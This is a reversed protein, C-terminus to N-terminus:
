NTPMQGTPVAHPSFGKSKAANAKALCIRPNSNQSAKSSHIRTLFEELSQEVAKSHDRLERFDVRLNALSAFAQLVALSAKPFPIHSFVHPIEGLLCAGQLGTSAALGLLTGNLGSISGELLPDLGSKQCIALTAQDTAAAFVRSPHRPRMQTAMAAFTFIKSVGLARAQDILRHCFAASKASPQAEGLFLILDRQGQPANWLFLRSRPLRGPIILGSRVEVQGPEFYDAAPFEVLLHMGLKAMLYYGASIAVGSMGPWVALLWPDQLPPHPEM